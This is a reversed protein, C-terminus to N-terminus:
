RKAVSGRSILKGNARIRPDEAKTAGESVIEEDAEEKLACEKTFLSAIIDGPFSLSAVAYEDVHTEGIHATGVVQTPDLFRQGVAAGAILRVISACYGGVDMIGGGGLENNLLRGDPNGDSNFSFTAQIGQFQRMVGSSILEVLKETQPHCRYMFAEMLFVNNSRAAKVMARAQGANIALPKECLIHKGAEAAQYHGVSRASSAAAYIYVAQVDSDMLLDTYSPM